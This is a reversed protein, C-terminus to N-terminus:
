GYSKFIKENKSIAAKDCFSIDTTFQRAATRSTQQRHLVFCFVNQM